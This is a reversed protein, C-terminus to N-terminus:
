HENYKQHYDNINKEDEPVLPFKTGSPLIFFLIFTNRAICSRVWSSRARYTPTVLCVMRAISFPFYSGERSSAKLIALRNPTVM